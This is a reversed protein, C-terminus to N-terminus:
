KFVLVEFFDDTKLFYHVTRFQPFITEFTRPSFERERRSRRVERLSLVDDSEITCQYVPVPQDSPDGHFMCFIVGQPRIIEALHAVTARLTAADLHQLVDWALIADFSNTNYDLEQRLMLSASDSTFERGESARNSRAEDVYRLLDVFTVRHGLRSLCATTGHSIMGLDLVHLNHSDGLLSILRSLAQSTRGGPPSQAAILPSLAGSGSKNKKGPVSGSGASRARRGLWFAM